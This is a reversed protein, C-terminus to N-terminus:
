HNVIRATLEKLFQEFDLPAGNTQDYLDQLVRFVLEFKQDLGLTSATILLDRVDGRRQRPDAYISFLAHLESIHEPSFVPNKNGIDKAMVNKLEKEQIEKKSM